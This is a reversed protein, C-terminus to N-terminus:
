GAATTLLEAPTVELVLLEAGRLVQISTREGLPLEFLVRHIDDASQTRRGGVATIADGPRLGARAAPGAPDVSVVAVASDGVLNFHRITRRGLPRQHGALGLYGRRVRGHALIQTVVWQVTKAPIAFGIGQALAIIATNVGVVDGHSDVLPGGSNGPNLPATHQIVDEILRGERSRIARGLASVVGTSVTSSFGLPNGIAIVLQGVRLAESNGLRAFPLGSGGARLLALDTAPDGGVLSAELHAGSELTVGLRRAGRVVHDNTIVYGDPAVIAGSGAGGGGEETGRAGERVVSVVAPGAADVVGIVARSYADLLEADAEGARRAREGSAAASDADDGVLWLHPQNRQENM